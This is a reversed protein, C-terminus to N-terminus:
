DLVKFWEVVFDVFDEYYLVWWCYIGGVLGCVCVYVFNCIEWDCVVCVYGYFGSWVM